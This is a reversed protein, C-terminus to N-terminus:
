VFDVAVKERACIIDWIHRITGQLLFPSCKVVFMVRLFRHVIIEVGQIADYWLFRQVIIEVGQIADDWLFRHVIIEIGQIADYWLFRHVIIEIGQIVDYWLVRHVIIEVGQIVDYWLFRQALYQNGRKSFSAQYRVDCSNRTCPNPTSYLFVRCFILAQTYVKM